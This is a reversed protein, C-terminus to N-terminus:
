TIRVAKRMFRLAAAKTAYPELVKGEHDVGKWWPADGRRDV